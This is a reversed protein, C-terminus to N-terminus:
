ITTELQIVSYAHNWRLDSFIAVPYRVRELNPMGANM